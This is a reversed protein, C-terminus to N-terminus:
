KAESEYTDSVNEGDYIDVEHLIKDSEQAAKTFSRNKYLNWLPIIVTTFVTSVSYCVNKVNEANIETVGFAVCLCNVIVIIQAILGKWTDATVGALNLRNKFNILKEIM